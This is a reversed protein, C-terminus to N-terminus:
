QVTINFTLDQSFPYGPGSVFAGKLHIVHLGKSLPKIMLWYGDSAAYGSSWGSLETPYGPYGLYSGTEPQLFYFYPTQIRYNELNTIKQNDITAKLTSIGIGDAWTGICDRAKQPTSGDFITGIEVSSCEINILPVLIAKGYPATCNHVTPGSGASGGLFLVPGGTQGVFCDTANGYLPNEAAPITFVWQWWAAEWEAYSMGFITSDPPYVSPNGPAPNGAFACTAVLIVLLWTFVLKM